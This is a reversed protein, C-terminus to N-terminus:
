IMGFTRGIKRKGLTIEKITLYKLYKVQLYNMFMKLKRM